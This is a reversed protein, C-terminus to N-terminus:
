AGMREGARRQGVDILRVQYAGGEAHDGGPFQRQQPHRSARLQRVLEVAGSRLEDGLQDSAANVTRSHASSKGISSSTLINAPVTDRLALAAPRFGMWTTATVPPLPPTPLVLTET